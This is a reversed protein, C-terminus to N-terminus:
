TLVSLSHTNGRLPMCFCGRKVGPAPQDAHQAKLKPPPQNPSKKKIRMTLESYLAGGALWLSDRVSKEVARELWDAYEPIQGEFIRAPLVVLGSACPACGALRGDDFLALSCHFVLHVYGPSLDELPTYEV